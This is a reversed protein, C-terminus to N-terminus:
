RSQQATQKLLWVNGCVSEKDVVFLTFTTNELM